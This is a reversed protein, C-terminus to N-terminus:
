HIDRFHNISPGTLSPTQHHRRLIIRGFISVLTHHILQTNTKLLSNLLRKAIHCTYTSLQVDTFVINQVLCPEIWTFIHNGVSELPLSPAISEVRKELLLSYHITKLSQLPRIRVFVLYSIKLRYTLSLRFLLQLTVLWLQMSTGNTQLRVFDARLEYNESCHLM